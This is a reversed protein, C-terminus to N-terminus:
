LGDEGQCGCTSMSTNDRSTTSHNVSEVKEVAQLSSPLISKKMDQAIGRSTSSGLPCGCLCCIEATSLKRGMSIKDGTRHSTLSCMRVCM